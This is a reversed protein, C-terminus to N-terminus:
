QQKMEEIEVNDKSALPISTVVDSYAELKDTAAIFQHTDSKNILVRYTPM